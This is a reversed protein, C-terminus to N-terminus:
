PTLKLVLFDTSGNSTQEGGGFDIAGSLAGAVILNDSIDLCLCFNYLGSAGMTKSWVALGQSSYKALVIDSTPVDIQNLLVGSVTANGHSDVAVSQSYGDIQKAWLCSGPETSLAGAFKALFSAPGSAAMSLALNGFSVNAECSGTVFVNGKGDISLGSSSDDRSGGFNGAWLPSGSKSFMAVFGDAGEASLWGSGFDVEGHFEGCIAINGQLDIAVSKAVDNGANGFRRSWVHRGDVTSLEAVCIDKMGASSLGSEETDAFNIMSTFSGALVIVDGDIAISSVSNDGEDGFSKVWLQVGDSSYKSVFADADGFASLLNSDFDVVGSYSGALYINGASDVTVAEATGRGAFWKSWIHTGAASIKELYISGDISGAALIAGEGDVAVAKASDDNTGGLSTSWLYSGSTPTAKLPAASGSGAQTITVTDQVTLTGDLVKITGSRSSSNTNVAVTYGIIADGSGITPNIGTIWSADAQAMWSSNAVLSLNSTGGSASFTVSSPSVWYVATVGTQVIRLSQQVVGNGDLIRLYGSRGDITTNPNVTYSISANTNGSFPSITNIWPVDSIATWNCRATLNVSVRGGNAPFLLYSSSLTYNGPMGAQTVLLTRKLMMDADFIKILGSRSVCNNNAIVFYNITADGLGSVPSLGSIWDVDTQVVWSGSAILQVNSAGGASTFNANTGNVFYGAAGGQTIMLTQQVVSDASLIKISGIRSLSNTNALLTFTITANSNGSAPIISTIWDVDKQVIWQATATLQVNSSVANPGFTANTFSLLHTIPAGAELISLTQQVVSNIDLVKISGSRSTHNPNPQVNYSINGSSNGSLPSIGTIWNVDAQLSWGTTTTLFANSTGGTYSFFANSSSLLHSPPAGDQTITLTQQIASNKDLVKISGTRPLSSTNAPIFYNINASGIGNLQSINTIWSVDNQISWSCNASLSVNGNGGGPAFAGNNSSLAYTGAVGSQTVTVAQTNVYFVGVRNSCDSNPAVSYTVIGNSSSRSLAVDVTIWPTTNSVVWDATQAVVSVEGNTAGNWLVSIQTPSVSFTSVSTSALRLSRLPITAPKKSKLTRLAGYSSTGTTTVVVLLCSLSIMRVVKSLRIERRSRLKIASM